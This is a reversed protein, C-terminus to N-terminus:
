PPTMTLKDLFLNDVFALQFPVMNIQYKEFIDPPLDCASDTVLAIPYKRNHSVQYQRQMDDVKIQDIQGLEKIKHFLQSPQNTHIHFHMRAPSGAVIISDGFKKIQTRFKSIAQNVHSILAETCYRYKIRASKPLSHIEDTITVPPLEKKRILKERNIQKFIGELFNVFGAAGADM